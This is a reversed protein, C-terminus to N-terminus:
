PTPTQQLQQQELMQQQQQQLQISYNQIAENVDAPIPPETPVMGDKWFDFTEAPEAAKLSDLLERLRTSQAQEKENTQMPRTERGLLQIIHYGYQTQVPKSVQGISLAFAADSFEKVMTGATFWGLDGGQDKNSSDTSYQAALANWDEGQNLRELINWAEEESAVLIHRAWIYEQTTPLDETLDEMLKRRLITRRLYDRLFADDLGLPKLDALFQDYTAQFGEITMPTASPEPTYTQALTPTPPITPSPGPTLTATPELTPTTPDPTSTPALTATPQLWTEQTADLTATAYPIDTPPSTPTGKAFYGFAQQVEEDLDATSVTIGRKQAEAAVYADDILGDLTDQAFSAGSQMQSVMNMVSSGAFQMLMPNSTYSKITRIQLFRNFKVMRAFENYTITDGAARAVPRNNKIVTENLIGFIIVALTLIAVVAAGIIIYRSQRRQRDLRAQTKKSIYKSTPEKAM